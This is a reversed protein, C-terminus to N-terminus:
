YKSDLYIVAEFFELKKFCEIFRFVDGKEYCAHCIYTGPVEDVTFQFKHDDGLNENKCFPCVGRLLPGDRVLEVFDSVVDSLKVRSRVAAILNRASVEDM